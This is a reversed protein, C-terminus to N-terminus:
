PLPVTRVVAPVAAPRRRGLPRGARRRHPGGAPLIFAGPYGRCDSKGVQYLPSLAAMVDRAPGSIYTETRTRTNRREEVRTGTAALVMGNPTTLRLRFLATEAFLVDGYPAPLDTDWVGDRRAPIIPVMGALSMIGDRAVLEQYGEPASEPVVLRYTLTIRAAQGPELAPALRLWAATREVAYDFALPRGDREASLIDLRGQRYPLNAFLRLPLETLPSDGANTLTIHLRAEVTHQEPLIHVELDYLTPHPLVLLEGAFSPRM